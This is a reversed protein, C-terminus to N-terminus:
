NIVNPRSLVGVAVARLSFVSASKMKGRRSPIDVSFKFFSILGFLFGVLLFIAPLFLFRSARTGFSGGAELFFSPLFGTVVRSDTMKQLPVTDKISSIKKSYELFNRTFFTEIEEINTLRFSLLINWVKKFLLWENESEYKMILVEVTILQFFLISFELFNAM